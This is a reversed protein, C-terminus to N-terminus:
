DNDNIWWEDKSLTPFIRDKLELNWNEWLKKLPTIQEPYKNKLNKKESIDASVDYLEAISDNGNKVLKYTDNMVAMANQEWKRWFLYKHPMGLKEERLYPIINVGDLPKELHIKTDVVDVITAAIDLSSVPNHYRIGQPIVGKWQIAFPVRIGGEYLDGKNGRLPANRSANNRAGGNDSLFVILTNNTLTYNELVKLVSGVGDDVASVMAAYTKRKKDNINPFRSLYKETAQMPTHPANYALFVFFPNNNQAQKSIFNCAALSLEDTLYNTHYTKPELITHNERLKTKYWGWKSHVDNLSEITLQDLFYNHGGALFGFFYDFGRNLPHFNQHTGLHWKGIIASKYGKPHLLEAITKEDTPLGAIPNNPNITPNSTYGFRDQYRGTIFGARSPSCVAFTVYGNVLNVGHDAISDINPTPIDTCGNFGVDAYGMDDTMIVIINPKDSNQQGLLFHGITLIIILIGKHM